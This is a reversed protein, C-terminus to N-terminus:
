RPLFSTRIKCPTHRRAHVLQRDVQRDVQRAPQCKQQAPTHHEEHDFWCSTSLFAQANTWRGAVVGCRLLALGWLYHYRTVKGMGTSGGVANRVFLAIQQNKATTRLADRERLSSSAMCASTTRSARAPASVCLTAEPRGCAPAGCLLVGRGAKRGSHAEPKRRRAGESSTRRHCAHSHRIRTLGQRAM